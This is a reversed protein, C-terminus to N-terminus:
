SPQHNTSMGRSFQSLALQLTKRCVTYINKLTPILKLKSVYEIASFTRAQSLRTTYPMLAGAEIPNDPSRGYTYSAYFFDRIIEESSSKKYTWTKLKSGRVIGLQRSRQPSIEFMHSYENPVRARAQEIIAPDIVDAWTTTNRSSRSYFNYFLRRTRYSGKHASRAHWTEPTFLLVDGADGTLDVEAPHPAHPNSM